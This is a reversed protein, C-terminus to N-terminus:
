LTDMPDVDVACRANTTLPLIKRADKGRVLVHWTKGAGFFTPASSAQLSLTERVQQMRIAALLKQADAKATDETFIMRIMQANPPYNASARLALEEDLYSETKHKSAAVIESADPRYTQIIVEGPILRGSRGTLQTLLQFVREGARFHPLSLGVDAVMVAALTVGPLDLGKVVAQTGLLIDAERNHMKSLLLRMHEPFKLTDSDARILRAKPFISTLLDELKQTGAGVARLSASGCSPCSLPIDMSTGTIHDLLFPRGDPTRHLTYPIQSEPSLVRRKCELCLLATAMGRRNLFLVTQEGKDLRKKMEDLLTPSFPYM